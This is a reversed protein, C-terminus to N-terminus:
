APTLKADSANLEERLTDYARQYRQRDEADYQDLNRQRLARYSMNGMRLMQWLSEVMDESRRQYNVAALAIEDESVGLFRAMRSQDESELHAQNGLFAGLSQVSQIILKLFRQFDGELPDANPADAVAIVHHLGSKLLDAVRHIHRIRTETDLASIPLNLLEFAKEVYADRRALHIPRNISQVTRHM